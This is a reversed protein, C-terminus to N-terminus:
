RGKGGLDHVSRLFLQIAFCSARRKYWPGRPHVRDLRYPSKVGLVKSRRDRRARLALQCGSFCAGQKPSSGDVFFHDLLIKCVELGGCDPDRNTM